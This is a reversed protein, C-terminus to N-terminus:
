LDLDIEEFCVMFGESGLVGLCFGGHVAAGVASLM